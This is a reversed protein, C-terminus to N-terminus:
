ANAEGGERPVSWLDGAFVFVIGNPCPRNRSFCPGAPIPRGPRRRWPGSLMRVTRLRDLSFRKVPLNM